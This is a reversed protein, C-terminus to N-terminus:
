IDKHPLISDSLGLAYLIARPYLTYECAHIRSEFDALSDQPHKAIKEQLIIDGSDLEESVWHVSVGGYDTEDNFSDRIAHAGKHAPLFSPHINIAQFSQTFLPTLIRMFGALFVYDIHHAKLLAIMAEDFSQRSTFDRHSIIECPIHLQKARTIGYANPNNCLTLSIEILVEKKSANYFRKHHLSEILNQMNSGNGSFLIACHLTKPM